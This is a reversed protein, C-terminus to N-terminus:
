AAKAQNTRQLMRVYASLQDAIFREHSVDAHFDFAFGAEVRQESDLHTHRLKIAVGLPAPLLNGLPLQTWFLHQKNLNQKADPSVLLALGGGGVNLLTAEFEPGVTPKAFKQTETTDATPDELKQFFAERTAAQALPVTAPELIPAATVQPLDLALTSVRYFSRRPCREVSTPLKIAITGSRKFAGAKPPFLAIVTTAFMWKNQGISIIGVLAAGPQLDLPQGLTSPQDLLIRDDRIEEVRARCILAPAITQGEATNSPPTIEICGERQQLEKLSDIWNTTRSRHAPM